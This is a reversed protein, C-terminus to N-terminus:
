SNESDSDNNGDKLQNLGYILGEEFAEEYTYTLKYYDWKKELSGLEKSVFWNDDKITFRKSDKGNIYLIRSNLIDFNLLLSIELKQSRLWDQLEGQLPAAIFDADPHHSNYKYKIARKDDPLVDYFTENIDEFNDFLIREKYASPYYYGETAEDFGVEKALKATDYNIIDM